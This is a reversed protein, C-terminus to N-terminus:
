PAIALLADAIEDGVSFVTLPVQRTSTSSLWHRISTKLRQPGNWRRPRQHLWETYSRSNDAGLQAGRPIPQAFVLAATAELVTRLLYAPGIAELGLSWWTEGGTRVETLEVSCERSELAQRSRSM